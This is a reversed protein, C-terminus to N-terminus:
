LLLDAMYPAGSRLGRSNAGAYDQIKAQLNQGTVRIRDIDTKSDSIAVCAHHVTQQLYSLQRANETTHAAFLERMSEFAEQHRDDKETSAYDVSSPPVPSGKNDAREPNVPSGPVMDLQEQNLGPSPKEGDPEPRLPKRPKVTQAAAEM